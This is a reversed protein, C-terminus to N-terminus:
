AFTKIWMLVMVLPEAVIRDGPRVAVSADRHGDYAGCQTEGHSSIPTGFVGFIRPTSFVIEAKDGPPVYPATSGCPRLRYLVITAAAGVTTDHPTPESGKPPGRPSERRGGVDYSCDVSPAGCHNVYTVMDDHAALILFRNDSCDMGIRLDFDFVKM